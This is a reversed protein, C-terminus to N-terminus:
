NKLSHLEVRYIITEFEKLGVTKCVVSCIRGSTHFSVNEPAEVVADTHEDENSATIEAMSEETSPEDIIIAQQPISEV